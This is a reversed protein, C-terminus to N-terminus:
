GWILYNNQLHPTQAKPPASNIAFVKGFLSFFAIGGCLARLGGKGWYLILSPAVLQMKRGKGMRFIELVKDRQEEQLFLKAAVSTDIIYRDMAYM